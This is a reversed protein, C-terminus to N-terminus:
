KKKEKEKLSKHHEKWEKMMKEKWGKGNRKELYKYV